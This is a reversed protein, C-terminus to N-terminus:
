VISQRRKGTPWNRDISKQSKNIQHNRDAAGLFFVCADTALCGNPVDHFALSVSVFPM